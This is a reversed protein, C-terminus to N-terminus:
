ITPAHHGDLVEARRVVGEEREVRRVRHQQEQREQTSTNTHSLSLYLPISLSLLHLSPPLSPSLSDSRQLQCEPQTTCMRLSHLSFPGQRVLNAALNVPVSGNFPGSSNVPVSSPYRGADRSARSAQGLQETLCCSHLQETLPGVATTPAAGDINARSKDSWPTGRRASNERCQM